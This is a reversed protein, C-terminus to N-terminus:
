TVAPKSPGAAAASGVEALESVVASPDSPSEPLPGGLRARLEDLEVRPFVPRAGLSELFDAALEATEHLLDRV